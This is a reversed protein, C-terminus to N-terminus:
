LVYYHQISCLHKPYWSMSANHPVYLSVPMNHTSFWPQLTGCHLVLAELLVMKMKSKFATKSKQLSLVRVSLQLSPQKLLTNAVWVHPGSSLDQSCVYYLQTHKHMGTIVPSSVYLYSSGQPNRTESFLVFFCFTLSVVFLGSTNRCVHMHMCPYMCPVRKRNESKGHCEGRTVYVCM